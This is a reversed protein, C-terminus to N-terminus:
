ETELLKTLHLILDEGIRRVEDYDDTGKTKTLLRSFAAVMTSTRRGLKDVEVMMQITDDYVDEITVDPNSILEKISDDIHSGAEGNEAEVAAFKIIPAMKRLSITDTIVQDLRKKVFATQIANEGYEDLITPRNSRLADIVNTKLEWFFNLPIKDNRIYDQWEDPLTVIYRYRRIRDISLGTIRALERDTLEDSRGAQLGAALTQLAKATPIDRWPERMEHINFMQQLTELDTRQSTVLAPITTLGLERSCRFRREGDVLVFHEGETYVVIPVLVGEAEISESLKDLESQPFDLRPNRNNPQIAEMRINRLTGESPHPAEIINDIKVSM